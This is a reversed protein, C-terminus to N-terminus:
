NEGDDANVGFGHPSEEGRGVWPSYCEHRGYLDVPGGGRGRYFWNCPRGLNDALVGAGLVGTAGMTFPSMAVLGWGVVDREDHILNGFGYDTTAQNWWDSGSFGEGQFLDIGEKATSWVASKAWGLANLAHGVAGSPGQRKVPPAEWQGLSTELASQIQPSKLSRSLATSRQATSPTLTVGGTPADGGEGWIRDLADELPTGM